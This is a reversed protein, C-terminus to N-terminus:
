HHDDALRDVHLRLAKLEARLRANDAALEDLRQLVDVDNIQARGHVHVDRQHAPYLHLHGAADAVVSGDGDGPCAPARNWGNATCMVRDTAVVRNNADLCQYHRWQGAAAQSEPELLPLDKYPWTCAVPLCGPLGDWEGTPQCTLQALGAPVYGPNCAYEATRRKALDPPHVWAGNAPAAVEDCPAVLCQYANVAANLLCAMGPACRQCEADTSQLILSSAGASCAAGAGLFAQCARQGLSSRCATCFHADPCDLDSDCEHQVPTSGPCEQAPACQGDAQRRYGDQCRCRALCQSSACEQETRGCDDPCAACEDWVEHDPCMPRCTYLDCEAVGVACSAAEPVCETHEPCPNQACPDVDAFCDVAGNANAVFEARCQFSYFFFFFVFFLFFLFFFFSLRFSLRFFFFFSPSPPSSLHNVFCKHSKNQEIERM